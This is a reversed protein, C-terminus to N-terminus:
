SGGYEVYKPLLRALQESEADGFDAATVPREFMEDLLGHKLAWCAWVGALGYAALYGHPNEWPSRGLRPPGWHAIRAPPTADRRREHRATRKGDCRLCVQVQCVHGWINEWVRRGAEPGVPARCDYCWRSM